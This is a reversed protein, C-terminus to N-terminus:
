NIVVKRGGYGFRRWRRNVMAQRGTGGAVMRGAHSQRGVKGSVNCTPCATHFVMGSSGGTGAQGGSMGGKVSYLMYLRLRNIFISYILM